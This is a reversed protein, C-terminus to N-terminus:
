IEIGENIANKVIHGTLQRKVSIEQESEIMIDSLINFSILSKRIKTRLDRKTTVPINNQTIILIDYDSSLTNENRARSGFLLVKCEPLFILVQQKIIKLIENKRVM